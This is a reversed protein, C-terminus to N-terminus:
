IILVQTTNVPGSQCAVSLKFDIGHCLTRFLRKLDREGKAAKSFERSRPMIVDCMDFALLLVLNSHNLYSLTGIILVEKPLIYTSGTQFVAILHWAIFYHYIIQMM